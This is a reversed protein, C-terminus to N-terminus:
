RLVEGLDARVAAIADDFVRDIAPALEEKTVAAVRALVEGLIERAHDLRDPTMPLLDADRLAKMLEFLVEHVLSGRQLPSLEEIAVPEERPSLKHVTYLFFKYPCTAYTELATPSFSRATLRHADLAARAIGAPAVLGDAPHWRRHWRRARFRLARALHVNAGLLYNAT